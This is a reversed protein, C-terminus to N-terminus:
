LPACCHVAALIVKCPQTATALDQAISALVSVVSAAEVHLRCRLYFRTFSLQAKSSIISFKM